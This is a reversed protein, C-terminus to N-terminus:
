LLHLHVSVVPGFVIDVLAKREYVLLRQIVLYVVAGEGLPHM